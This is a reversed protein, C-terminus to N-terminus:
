VPYLENIKKKDTEIFLVSGDNVVIGHDMGRAIEGSIEITDSFKNLTDIIDYRNWDTGIMMGGLNRFTHIDGGQKLLEIAETPTIFIRDSM